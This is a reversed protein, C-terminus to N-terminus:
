DSDDRQRIFDGQAIRMEVLDDWDKMPLDDAHFSAGAEILNQLHLLYQLRAANDPLRRPCHECTAPQPSQSYQPCLKV